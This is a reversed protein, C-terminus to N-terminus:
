LFTIAYFSKNFVCRNEAARRTEQRNWNRHLRKLDHTRVREPDYHQCRVPLLSVLSRPFQSLGYRRPSCILCAPFVCPGPFLHLFAAHFSLLSLSFYMLALTSTFCPLASFLTLLPCLCSTSFDCLCMLIFRCFLVPFSQVFAWFKADELLLVRLYFARERNKTESFIFVSNHIRHEM